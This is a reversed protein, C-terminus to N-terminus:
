RRVHDAVRFSVDEGRVISFAPVLEERTLGDESEWHAVVEGFQERVRYRDAWTPASAWPVRAARDASIQSQLTSDQMISGPNHQSKM